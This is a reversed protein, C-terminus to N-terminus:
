SETPATIQFGQDDDDWRESVIYKQITEEDVAGVNRLLLRTGVSTAGLIAQTTGSVRRAAKAIIASELIAGAKGALHDARVM